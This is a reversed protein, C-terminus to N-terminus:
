DPSHQTCWFNHNFHYIRSHQQRVASISPLSTQCILSQLPTAPTVYSAMGIALKPPISSLGHTLLFPIMCHPNGYSFRRQKQKNKPKPLTSTFFSSCIVYTHKWLADNPFVVIAILCITAPTRPIQENSAIIDPWIISMYSFSSVIKNWSGHNTFLGYIVSTINM